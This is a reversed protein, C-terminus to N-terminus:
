LKFPVSLYLGLNRNRFGQMIPGSKIVDRLGHEYRLGVSAGYLDVELGGVLGFDNQHYIWNNVPWAFGKRYWRSNSSFLLRSCYTGAQLSVNGINLSALLNKQLYYTNFRWDEAKNFAGKRQYIIEAQLSFCPSLNKKYYFGGAIGPSYDEAMNFYSSTLGAKIGFQAHASITLLPLWILIIRKM